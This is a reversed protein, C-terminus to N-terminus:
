VPAGTLVKAAYEARLPADPASDGAYVPALLSYSAGAQGCASLAYGDVASNDFPPSPNRATIDAALVGGVADILPLTVTRLNPRAQRALRRAEHFDLLGQTSIDPERWCRCSMFC